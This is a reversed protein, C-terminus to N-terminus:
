LDSLLGTSDGHHGVQVDARDLMTLMLNALPTNQPYALHQGGRIRGNGRGMIISPVPDHNHINSDSMCSGYLIMAHDLVSGDGEPMAALSKVFTSFASCFWTQVQALRDLKDTQNQHHSLPHFADAIGINNFTRMSAERDSMFTAVRTIDAQFALAMLQYMLEMHVPFSDPMGVPADPVSLLSLDQEQMKQLQREVQRVSELYEDMLLRDGAGLTKSLSGAQGLVRDLLSSNEASIREREESTDGEGFLRFYLKRPDSEMPLPQNPTRFAITSSYSGNNSGGIATSLELSQLPTDKGIAAAAVQDTSVGDGPNSTGEPAVCRLWTGATIGHPDPSEAPRNRLGSVITMHERFEALPALIPSMEFDPGEQAPTWRSMVAGHPVYIFGMRLRPAAATAAQATAAPVMADLLPLAIGAGAGRLLHRRSLHKKTIFM